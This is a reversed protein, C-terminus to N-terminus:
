TIIRMIKCADGINNFLMYGHKMNPDIIIANSSSNDNPEFGEQRAYEDYYKYTGCLMAVKRQKDHIFERVLSGRHIHGGIGIKIDPEARMGREIGHTPNYISNGIWSHRIKIPISMGDVNVEFRNEYQDYFCDAGINALNNKLLDVGISNTGFSEHNGSTVSLLRSSIKKIFYLSIEQEEEVTFKRNLALKHFYPIVFNDTLDGLLNLYTNPTDLINDVDDFVQRIDMAGGFHLCSMNAICIPGDTFHAVQQDKRQHLDQEKEFHSLMEDFIIEPNVTQDQATVGDLVMKVGTYKNVFDDVQDSVQSSFAKTFGDAIRTFSNALETLSNDKYKISGIVADPVSLLRNHIASDLDSNRRWLGNLQSYTLPINFQEQLKQHLETRTDITGQVNKIMEILPEIKNNNM